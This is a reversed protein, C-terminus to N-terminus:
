SRHGHVPQDLGKFQSELLSGQQGPGQGRHRQGDHPGPHDDPPHGKETVGQDVADDGPYCKGDDEVEVHQGPRGRSGDDHDETDVQDMTLRRERLVGPDPQEEHPHQGNPHYEDGPGGGIGPAERCDQKAVGESHSPTVDDDQGRDGDDGDDDRHQEVPREEHEREILLLRLQESKSGLQGM